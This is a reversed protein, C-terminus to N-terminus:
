KVVCACCKRLVSVNVTSEGILAKTPYNNLRYIDANLVNIAMLPILHYLRLGAINVSKVHQHLQPVLM